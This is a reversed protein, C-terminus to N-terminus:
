YIPPKGPTLYSFNALDVGRRRPWIWEAGKKGLDVNIYEGQTLVRAVTGGCGPAGASM